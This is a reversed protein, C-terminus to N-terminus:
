LSTVYMVLVHSPAVSVSDFDSRPDSCQTEVGTLRYLSMKLSEVPRNQSMMHGKEVTVALSGWVSTDDAYLTM